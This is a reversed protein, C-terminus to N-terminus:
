YKPMQKEEFHAEWGSVGQGGEKRKERQGGDGEIDDHVIVITEAGGVNALEVAEEISGAVVGPNHCGDGILGPFSAGLDKGGFCVQRCRRLEVEHRFTGWAKAGVGIVRM